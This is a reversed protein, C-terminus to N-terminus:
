SPCTDGKRMGGKRRNWRFVLECKVRAVKQLEELSLKIKRPITLTPVYGFSGQYMSPSGFLLPAVFALCPRSEKGSYRPADVTGWRGKYFGTDVAYCLVLFKEWSNRHEGNDSQLNPIRDNRPDFAGCISPPRRCRCALAQLDGVAAARIAAKGVAEDLQYYKWNVRSSDKSVLDAVAFIFGTSTWVRSYDGSASLEPMWKGADDGFQNSHIYFCEGNDKGLQEKKIVSTFEGKAKCIGGM